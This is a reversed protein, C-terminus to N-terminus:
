QTESPSSNKIAKVEEIIGLVDDKIVNVDAIGENHERLYAM